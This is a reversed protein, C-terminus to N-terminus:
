SRHITIGGFSTHARVTVTEAAKGPGTSGDLENHVRGFGTHVELQAATGEAIGIELEGMSTGLEVLGRTVTGLRIDGNATRADVGAAARDVAIDGNASRVRVDGTATAIAVDGNSSKVVVTGDVEDIRVKGSGTHIEANGSVVDAAVRGAGTDVHLPGTREFRANGAGTRFRCEDLRGTGSLDGMQVKGSVQSGSPVDISVEVSRTRRSFDLAPVKPGVVQVVGNAYDVRVQQATELDSADLEDTPRVDVVTDTRDSATIRVNAAGLDLAVAIPAPTQFIPM